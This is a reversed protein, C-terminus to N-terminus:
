PILIPISINAKTNSSSIIIESESSVRKPLVGAETELLTKKAEESIETSDKPNTEPKSDQNNEQSLKSSSSNSAHSKTSASVEVEPLEDSSDIISGDRNNLLETNPNKEKIMIEDVSRDLEIIFSSWCLIEAQNAKVAENEAICASEYLRAINQLVDSNEQCNNEQRGTLSIKMMHNEGPGDKTFDFVDQVINEAEKKKHSKSEGPALRHGSTITEADYSLKSTVSSLDQTSYTNDDSKAIFNTKKDNQSQKQELKAVRAKLVANETATDKDNQELKAILNTKEQDKKELNTFRNEHEELAQKLKINETVDFKLFGLCQSQM